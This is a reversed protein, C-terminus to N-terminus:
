ASAEAKAAAETTPLAFQSRRRRRWYGYGAIFAVFVLPLVVINLIM